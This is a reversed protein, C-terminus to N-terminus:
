RIRSGLAARAVRRVTRFSHLRGRGTEIVVDALRRKDRDPLQQRLIAAFRDEDMGPRQLLRARQVRYPASAVAVVDVDRWGDGELLLPVDLVVARRSRFRQCFRRQLRRVEPHLMRELRGLAARDGFVRAGLKQRDVGAPGTTGSFEAEIRAVLRGGPGQLFRVAADADFVPIGFRRFMGALKSKGMGISGTLGIVVPRFPKM